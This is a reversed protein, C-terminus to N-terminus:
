EPKDKIAECAAIARRLEHLGSYTQFDATTMQVGDLCDRWTALFLAAMNAAALLKPGHKAWHELRQLKREYVSAAYIQKDPSM